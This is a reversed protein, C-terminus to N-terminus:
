FFLSLLVKFFYNQKINYLIKQIIFFSNILLLNIKKNINLKQIIKKTNMSLKFYKKIKM